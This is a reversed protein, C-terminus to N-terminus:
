GRWDDGEVRVVVTARGVHRDTIVRAVVRMARRASAEPTRAAFTSSGPEGLHAVGHTISTHWPRRGGLRRVTLVFRSDIADLMSEVRAPAAPSAPPM